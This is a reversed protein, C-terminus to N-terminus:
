LPMKGVIPDFGKEQAASEDLGVTAIESDTFVAASIVQYDLAAPEGAIVETAVHGEQYAKHVLM